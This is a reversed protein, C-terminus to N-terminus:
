IVLAGYSKGETLIDEEPIPPDMPTPLQGPINLTLSMDELFGNNRANKETQVV